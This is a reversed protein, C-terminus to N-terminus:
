DDKEQKKSLAFGSVGQATSTETRLMTYVPNKRNVPSSAQDVSYWMEISYTKSEKKEHVQTTARFLNM